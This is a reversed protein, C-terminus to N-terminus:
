KHQPQIGPLQPLNKLLGLAQYSSSAPSFLAFKTKPVNEGGESDQNSSSGLTTKLTLLHLTLTPPTYNTFDTLTCLFHNGTARPQHIKGSPQHIRNEVQRVPLYFKKPFESYDIRSMWFIKEPQIFHSKPQYMRAVAQGFPLSYSQSEKCGTLITTTTSVHNTNIVMIFVVWLWLSQSNFFINIHIMHLQQQPTTLM